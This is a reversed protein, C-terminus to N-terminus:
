DVLHDAAMPSLACKIKDIARREIQRVREKTVGFRKGLEELTCSEAAGFLGFHESVITVERPTLDRMSDQLAQTLTARDLGNGDAARHDATADLMEDQGTIFRTCHYHEEPVTRAYNKMIAWSAYTSFKFGRSYDFKEVARMLSMNGDSIVEFFRPSWGVHKKAISVVLRLNAEVIRRRVNEYAATLAAVAELDVQRVDCLDLADIQRAAKYKLYNYRRFADLEQDATMLPIDYLKRLYSPLDRPARVHKGRCGPPEPVDLILADANTADFLENHVHAVPEAKLKRAQMERLDQEVEAQTTGFARAIAAVSEGREHAQWIRRQRPPAAPLGNRAFLAQDPHAEDYRRLTYRVTEVARGTQEAIDRAVVHLKRRRETLLKRALEVIRRKESGSLQRFAAGRAVMSQNKEVFRDVTSRLYVLRAVGDAETVRFGMLGRKRWRRITKTSVNLDAALDDYGRFPEPVDAAPIANKRTIHEAMAVLDAVLKEGSIAPRETKSRTRYGTIHYCVMEYPYSRDPLVMGLLHDIGRIQELRKHRPSMLLQHALEALDQSAFTPM